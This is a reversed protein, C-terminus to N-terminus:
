SWVSWHGTAVAYLVLLLNTAAHAQVADGLRRRRYVALGFLLGAITGALWMTGHMAGFLISSVLWPVWAFEGLPVTDFRASVLRRPLFGRFALEEALPVTVVYGVVRIILWLAAWGPAIATLAAPWGDKDHIGAPMLAIWVVFTAVGIAMAEWSWAWRLDVYRKRFAWLAVAAAVVRLPYLWDFGASLAGTLMSTAVIALFPALYAATLDPADGALATELTPTTAFYRGRATIAVLGLGVANFALWGAQSHFGGLAVAPWGSTGIVVLTAIRLANLIWVASAGLPLLILANPFRLTKRSLWLYVGLFALILGIGEYGSCEPSIRVNFSRTGVVLTAPDSVTDAYLGHLIWQVVSFTYRALPRWLEQTLFGGAWAASGLSFGLFLGWRGMWGASLWARYPMLALSWLTLTTAGAVFWALAWADQHSVTVFAPGMVIATIRDFLVVACLQSAVLYARTHGARRGHELLVASLQTGNVLLTVVIVTIALRLFQPSWGVLQASLAPVRALAGTDFTITLYLIEAILLALLSLYPLLRPWPAPRLPLAGLARHDAPELLVGRAGTTGRL